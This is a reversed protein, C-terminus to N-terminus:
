LERQLLTVMQNFKNRILQYRTHESDDKKLVDINVNIVLGNFCM